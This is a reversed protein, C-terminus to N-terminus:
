FLIRQRAYTVSEKKDQRLHGTHPATCVRVEHFPSNAPSFKSDAAPPRLKISDAQPHLKM